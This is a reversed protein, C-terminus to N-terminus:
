FINCNNYNFYNIDKKLRYVLSKIDEEKLNLKSLSPIGNIPEKNINIRILFPGVKIKDEKHRFTLILYHKSTEESKNKLEEKKLKDINLRDPSNFSYFDYIFFFRDTQVYFSNQQEENYAKFSFKNNEEQFLKILRLYEDKLSDNSLIKINNEFKQKLKTLVLHPKRILYEFNDSIYVFLIFTKNPNSLNIQVSYYTVYGQKLYENLVQINEETNNCEYLCFIGKQKSKNVNDYKINYEHVRFSNIKKLFKHHLEINYSVEKSNVVKKNKNKIFIDRSGGFKEFLTTKAEAEFLPFNPFNVLFDERM